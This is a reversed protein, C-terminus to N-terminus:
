NNIIKKVLYLDNITFSITISANVEGNYGANIGFTWGILDTGNSVTDTYNFGELQYFYSGRTYTGGLMQRGNNNVKELDKYVGFTDSCYIRGDYKNAFDSNCKVYFPPQIMFENCSNTTEATFKETAILYLQYDGNLTNQGEPLIESINFYIPLHCEPSGNFRKWWCNSVNATCMASTNYKIGNSLQTKTVYNPINEIIGDVLKGNKIIDIRDLTSQPEEICSIISGNEYIATLNNECKTCNNEILNGSCTM